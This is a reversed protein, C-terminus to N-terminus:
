GFALGRFLPMKKHQHSEMRRLISDLTQVARAVYAGKNLMVCEARVSMAADTIEGRSPLGAKALNELVQTAWIVPVHAAECLWLIEEQLEALREFGVEVALDGRAIMVGVSDYRMAELLLDGLHRFGASTEIKLVLGLRRPAAELRERISRVDDVTRVFSLGVLDAHALAFALSEHDKESMADLAGATPTDPLNIGMEGRIRFRGAPARVVRLLVRDPRAEVTVLELRGDDVFVRHGVALAPLVRPISLGVELFGHAHDGAQSPVAVLWFQDDPGLAVSTEVCPLPGPVCRGIERGSRMLRIETHETLYTTADLLGEVRDGESRSISVRRKKGRADRFRLEDGIRLLRRDSAPVPITTPSAADGLTVALAGAADGTESKPTRLKQVRVGPGLPLTRLKPGELDILIRVDRGLEAAVDRLTAISREWGVADGHATNVRFCNAGAELVDRAWAVTIESADPLTVMVYAHRTTSPQGFLARANSQLIAEARAPTVGDTDLPCPSTLEGAALRMDRLRARVRALSFQVRGECRGLSSLGLEALELQLSRLDHRRLALYQVLNIASRANSPHVVDLVDRSARVARELDGLLEDIRDVLAAPHPANTGTM